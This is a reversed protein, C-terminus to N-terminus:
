VPRCLPNLAVQLHKHMKEGPKARWMRTYFSVAGARISRASWKALNKGAARRHAIRRAPPRRRPGRDLRDLRRVSSLVRGRHAGAPRRRRQGHHQGEPRGRETGVHRPRSGASLPVQSAHVLREFCQVSIEPRWTAGDFNLEVDADIQGAPLYKYWQDQLVPPLVALLSRNLELRRIEASLWLPGKPEFGTRRCALRITASGCRASLNEIAFGDNDARFDARIDSLSQPWGPGDLRGRALRGSVNFRYTPTTAPDHSVQFDVSARGRLEGLAALRAVLPEPLSDRLEPSLEISPAKGRLSFSSTRPDIWGEFEVRRFGEAALAGRIRRATGPRKVPSVVMEVDRLKMAANAAKRADVIEIIGDQWVVEPPRKSFSPLPLLCATNWTGDSRRVVRLTSRRITVRRVPPEGELLQRWDTPCDLLMEEVHLIEGGAGPDSITLDRVRIGHGEVLQASRVRVKLDKYHGALRAEVRCRVQEDIQRWLCFLAVGGAVVSLM